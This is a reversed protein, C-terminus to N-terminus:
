FGYARNLPDFDAETLPPDCRLDDFDYQEYLRGEDDWVTQRVPLRTAPDIVVETRSGYYAPVVYERPRLRSSLGGIDPNVYVVLYPDTGVREAFAV